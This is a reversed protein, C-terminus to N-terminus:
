AIGVAVAGLTVEYALAAGIALAVGIVVVRQASQYAAPFVASLLKYLPRLMDVVLCVAQHPLAPLIRAPLVRHAVGVKGGVSKEALHADVQRPVQVACRRRAIRRVHLQAECVIRQVTKAPSRGDYVSRLLEVASRPIRLSRAAVSALPRILYFVIVVSHRCGGVEYGPVLVCIVCPAVDRRLRRGCASTHKAVGVVPLVLERRHFVAASRRQIAVAVVRHPVDAALRVPAYRM